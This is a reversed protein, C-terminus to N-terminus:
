EADWFDFIGFIIIVMIEVEENGGLIIFDLPTVVVAEVVRASGIRQQQWEGGSDHRRIYNNRWL